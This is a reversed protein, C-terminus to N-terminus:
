RSDSNLEDIRGLVGGNLAALQQAVRGTSHLSALITDQPIGMLELYLARLFHRMRVNAYYLEAGHLAETREQEDWHTFFNRTTVWRQPLCGNDGFIVQRIPTCLRGALDELRKRLSYQYGWKIRSSLAEKHAAALAGPIAASLVQRVPEYTEKDMYDGGVVGRHLGELAQMLSLFEVHLWLDNSALVSMALQSPAEVRPFTDFWRVVVESLHVGMTSHRMFFEHEDKYLCYVADRLAVIVSLARHPEGTPAEICDASMPCGATFALIMSIKRFEQLYWDVRQPTTPRLNIWGATDVRASTFPDAATNISFELRVSLGSTPVRIADERPQRVRCSWELHGQADKSTSQEIIPRSWWIALGPIRFSMEEFVAGPSVHAGMFLLSSIVTEPQRAGGSGFHFSWGQRQPSVVTVAEGDRTVGYILGYKESLCSPLVGTPPRFTELLDLRSADNPTCILTGSIKREPAEPLWWEGPAEIRDRLSYVSM